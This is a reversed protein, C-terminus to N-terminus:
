RMLEAMYKYFNLCHIFYLFKLAVLAELGEGEVFYREFHGVTEVIDALLAEGFDLFGFEINELASKTAAGHELAFGSFKLDVFVDFVFGEGFEAFLLGGGGM